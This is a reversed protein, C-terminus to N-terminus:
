ALCESFRELLILVDDEHALVDAGVAAGVADGAAKELLEAVLAHAVRRDRLRDDDAAADAGRHATQPRDDLEHGDVEAEKGDVLDDVDRRLYVVHRAPLDVHRQDDAHGAAAAALEARM